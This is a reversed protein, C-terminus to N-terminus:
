LLIFKIILCGAIKLVITTKIKQTTRKYPFNKESAFEKVVTLNYVIVMEKEINQISDLAKKFFM